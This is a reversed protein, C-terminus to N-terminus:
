MDKDLNISPIAVHHLLIYFGPKLLKYQGYGKKEANKEYYNIIIFNWTNQM